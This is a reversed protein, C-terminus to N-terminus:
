LSNLGSKKIRVAKSILVSGFFKEGPNLFIIRIYDMEMVDMSIIDVDFQEEIIQFCRPFGYNPGEMVAPRKGPMAGIIGGSIAKLPFRATCAAGMAGRIGSTKKISIGGSVKLPFLLSEASDL